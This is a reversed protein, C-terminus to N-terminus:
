KVSGLVGTTLFNKLFISAAGCSMRSVVARWCIKDSSGSMVLTTQVSTPYPLVTGNLEGLRGELNQRCHFEVKLDATRPLHRQVLKLTEGTDALQRLLM